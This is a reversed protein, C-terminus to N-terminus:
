ESGKLPLALVHLLTSLNASVWDPSIAGWENIRYRGNKNGGVFECDIDLEHLATITDQVTRRPMHSHQMIAPVTNVGSDILHAVYLRRYFSTKTKRYTTM